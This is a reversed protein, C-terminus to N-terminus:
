KQKEYKKMSKLQLREELYVAIGEEENSWTVESAAQKAEPSANGMAVGSGAELLMEIDNDEDGFAIVHNLTLGCYDAVKELGAAKNNGTSIIEIMHHPAGWSRQEIGQAHEGSILNRLEEAHELKPYVLLSTPGSRLLTKLDGCASPDKHLAFMDLFTEDYDHLFVDDVVEAMMNNVQFAKCTDIITKATELDLPSHYTHFSSDGPHHVYAGNFNVIPTDLGLQQYYMKSARYPRGTAIAVAHGMKKAEQLTKYTRTSITKDEKLLTGDLDLVILHKDM